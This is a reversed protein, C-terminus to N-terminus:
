RQNKLTEHSLQLQPLLFDVVELDDSVFKDPVCMGALLCNLHRSSDSRDADVRRIMWRRYHSMVDEEDRKKLGERGGQVEESEDPEKYTLSFTAPINLKTENRL